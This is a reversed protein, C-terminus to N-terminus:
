KKARKKRRKKKNKLKYEHELIREDAIKSLRKDEEIEDEVQFAYQTCLHKGVDYGKVIYGCAQLFNVFEDTVGMWTDTSDRVVIEVYTHEDSKEFRIM